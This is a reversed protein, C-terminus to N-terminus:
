KNKPDKLYNIGEIVAIGAFITSAAITVNTITLLPYGYNTLLYSSSLSITYLSIKTIKTLVDPSVKIEKLVKESGLAIQGIKLLENIPLLHGVLTLIKKTEEINKIEKKYHHIKLNKLAKAKMKKVNQKVLPPLQPDQEMKKAVALKLKDEKINTKKKIGLLKDSYPIVSNISNKIFSSLYNM